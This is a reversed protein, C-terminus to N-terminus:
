FRWGVTLFTEGRNRGGTSANSLHRVSVAMAGRQWGLVQMFQGNSSLVESLSRDPVWAGGGGFFWPGFQRRLTFGVFYEDPNGADDPQPGREGIHGAILEVPWDSNERLHLSLTGAAVSKGGVEDAYGLAVEVTPAAALPGAQLAGLVLLVGPGIRGRMIEPPTLRL